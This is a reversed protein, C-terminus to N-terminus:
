NFEVVFTMFPEHQAYTLFIGWDTLFESKLKVMISIKVQTSWDSVTTAHLQVKFLLQLKIPTSCVKKQVM